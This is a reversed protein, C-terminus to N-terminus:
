KGYALVDKAWDIQNVMVSDVGFSEALKLEEDNTVTWPRILIGRKNCDEVLSPYRLMHVSPHIAEAGVKECQEGTVLIGGGCLLATRSSSELRKIKQISYHNFSSWVIRDSMGYQEVVKLAISEIGDYYIIGTKLEINITLGTSKLLELVEALTPVEMFMPETLGRKNFNLKKIESLTFDKVWGQGNSTRDVTEDHIVVVEGDKTLQVDLEVGDAGMQAALKFGELTNEPASSYAGRHGWIKM